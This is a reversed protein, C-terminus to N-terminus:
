GGQLNELLGLSLPLASRVFDGGSACVTRPFAGIVECVIETIVHGIPRAVVQVLQLLVGLEDGLVIAFRRCLRYQLCDIIPRVQKRDGYLSIPRQM